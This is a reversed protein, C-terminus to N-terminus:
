LAGCARLARAVAAFNSDEEAILSEVYVQRVWDAGVSEIACALAEEGSDAEVEAALREATRTCALLADAVVEADARDFSLVDAGYLDPNDVTIGYQGLAAAGLESVVRDGYCEAEEATVPDDDLPQVTALFDAAIAEALTADTQPDAPPPPPPAPDVFQEGCLGVQEIVRDLASPRGRLDLALADALYREGLAAKVCQEVAFADGYEAYLAEALTPVLRTCTEIAIVYANAVEGPLEVGDTEDADLADVTYGADIIAQEGGDTVFRDAVCEAEQDTYQYADDPSNSRMINRILASRLGDSPGAVAPDGTTSSEPDAPPTGAVSARPITSSTESSSAEPGSAAGGDSGDTAEQPNSGGCAGLVVAAILVGVALVTWRRRRPASARAFLPPFIRPSM